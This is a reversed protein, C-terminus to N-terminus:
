ARWCACRWLAYATRWEAFTRSTPPVPHVYARKRGLFFRPPSPLTFAPSGGLHRLRIRVGLEGGTAIHKWGEVDGILVYLCLVRRAHGRFNLDNQAPGPPLFYTGSPVTRTRPASAWRGALASPVQQHRESEDIRFFVLQARKARRQCRAELSCHADSPHPQPSHAHMHTTTQTDARHGGPRPRRQRYGPARGRRSRPLLLRGHVRVRGVIVNAGAHFDPTHPGEKHGGVGEGDPRQAQKRSRSVQRTM